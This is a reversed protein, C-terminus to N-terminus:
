PGVELAALLAVGAAALRTSAALFAPDLTAPLDGPQHYHPNRFNATDTLMVAPIGRLWLPGNDSRMLPSTLPFAGDGGAVLAQLPLLDLEGNMVLLRQALTRSDENAVILLFDGVSPVPMLPPNDQVPATFGVCELVLAAVVDDALGAAAFRTSGLSGREELDFTVFRITRAFRRGAVARATALLAAVGSSNDDAGAYFADHHAALLVVEEPRTTGAHEAVVNHAVHPEAGLSVIRPALGAATLEAFVFSTAAASSLECSPYDEQAPYGECSRKDDALHGAALAEVWPMLREADIAEAMLAAGALDGVAPPEPVCAGLCAVVGYVTRM